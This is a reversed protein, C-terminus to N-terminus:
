TSRRGISRSEVHVELARLSLYCHNKNDKRGVYQRGSIYCIVRVYDGGMLDLDVFKGRLEIPVVQERFDGVGSTGRVRIERKVGTEYQVPDLVETVVGSFEIVPIKIDTINM